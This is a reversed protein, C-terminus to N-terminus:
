KRFSSKLNLKRELLPRTRYDEDDLGLLDFACLSVAKDNQKSDLLDFQVMGKEDFVIGEGDFMASKIRIRRVADVIRPFRKTFDAGRRSYIRM